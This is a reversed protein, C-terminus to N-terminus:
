PQKESGCSILAFGSVAAEREVDAIAFGNAAIGSGVGSFCGYNHNLTMLVSKKNRM